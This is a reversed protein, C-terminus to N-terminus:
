KRAAKEAYGPNLITAVRRGSFFDIVNRAAYEGAYEVSEIGNSGSHPLLMTNPAGLLPCDAPPPEVEFVDSGYHGLRGSELADAVAQEDILGGRSTNILTAGQKMMSLTTVNIMRATDKTLPLHLSIVDSVSFLEDLGVFEVNLRKAAEEDKRIDYAVIRCDFAGLMRAFAKSIDGFGVLGVTKGSLQRANRGEFFRSWDGRRLDKEANVFDRMLNLTLGLACEAVCKSFSGAANCVAVGNEAAAAKDIENTGVGFRSILRLEPLATITEAPIKEGASIIAAYPALEEKWDATNRTPMDLIDAPCGAEDLMKKMRERIYLPQQKGIIAVRNM